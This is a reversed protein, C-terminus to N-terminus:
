IAGTSNLAYIVLKQMMREKSNGPSDLQLRKLYPMANEPVKRMTMAKSLPGVKGMGQSMKAKLGKLAKGITLEEETFDTGFPFAPFFGQKRLLGLKEELRQPTNYRYLEPIEYSDEIKKAEKAQQLLQQQFRSDAINILSAIIERDSKGRLDAIGYETVVLDRLHRPV